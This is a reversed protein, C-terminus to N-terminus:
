PTGLELTRLLCLAESREVFFFFLSHRSKELATMRDTRFRRFHINAKPWFRDNTGTKNGNWICDTSCIPIAARIFSFCTKM